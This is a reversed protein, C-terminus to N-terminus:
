ARVDLLSRETEALTRLVKANATYLTKAVILGVVDEALDETEYGETSVNAINHARTALLTQAQQMGAAPISLM